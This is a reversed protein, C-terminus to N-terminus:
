GLPAFEDFESLGTEFMVPEQLVTSVPPLETAVFGLGVPVVAPLGYVHASSM